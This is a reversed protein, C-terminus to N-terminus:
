LPPELALFKKVDSKLMDLAATAMKKSQSKPRAAKNVYMLDYMVTTRLDGAEKKADGELGQSRVAYSSGSPRGCGLAPHRDAMRSALSPGISYGPPLRVNVAAKMKAKRLVQDYSKTFGLIDEWSEKEM